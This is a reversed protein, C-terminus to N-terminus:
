QPPRRGWAAMMTGEIFVFEPDDYLALYAELERTTVGAALTRESLQEATMRYFHAAASGGRTVPTRGEGAVDRLGRRLLAGYLRRGYSTDIGAESIAAAQAARVRQFLANAEADNAPDVIKSFYDPEELLIWGGPKLAAVMKDVVEDREPLHVLLARAHVLDFVGAAIPDITFDHRRVQLNPYDLADLFRTDLDIAFVQGTAAVRECLWEAISGGGAGAELCRWGEAVGISELHRVTGPDAVAELLSLRERAHRWANDLTYAGRIHRSPEDNVM